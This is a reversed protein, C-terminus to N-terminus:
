EESFTIVLDSEAHALCSFMWGQQKEKETLMPELEYHVLGTRIRCLCSACAGVKCRHPFAINQNLAADLVTQGNPVIFELKQPLLTVKHSM